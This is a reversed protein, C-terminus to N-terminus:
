WGHICYAAELANVRRQLVPQTGASHLGPQPQRSLVDWVHGRNGPRQSTLAGHRRRSVFPSRERKCIHIFARLVSAVRGGGAEVCGAGEGALAPWAVIPVAELAGRTLIRAHPMTAPVQLSCRHRRRGMGAAWPGYVEASAVQRQGQPVLRVAAERLLPHCGVIAAQLPLQEPKHSDCLCLVRVALAWPKM